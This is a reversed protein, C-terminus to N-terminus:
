NSEFLNRAIINTRHAKWSIKQKVSKDSGISKEDEFAPCIPLAWLANLESLAKRRFLRLFSIWGFSNQPLKITPLHNKIKFIQRLWLGAWVRQGGEAVQHNSVGRTELGGVGGGGGRLEGWGYEAWVWEGSVVMESRQVAALRDGTTQSCHARHKDTINNKWLLYETLLDM